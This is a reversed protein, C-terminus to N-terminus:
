SKRSKKRWRDSGRQQNNTNQVKKKRRESNSKHQIKSQCYYLKDAKVKIARLKADEIVQKCIHETKREVNTKDRLFTNNNNKNKRKKKIQNLENETIPSANENLTQSQKSTQKEM